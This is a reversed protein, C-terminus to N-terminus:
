CPPKWGLARLAQGLNVLRPDQDWDLVLAPPAPAPAPTGFPVTISPKGPGIGSPHHRTFMISANAHRQRSVPYVPARRRRTRRQLMQFPAPQSSWLGSLDRPGYTKAFLTMVPLAEVDEAWDFRPSVPILCPPVPSSPPSVTSPPRLVAATTPESTEAATSPAPSPSVARKRGFQPSNPCFPPSRSAPPSRPTSAPASTSTPSAPLTYWATLTSVVRKRPNQPM